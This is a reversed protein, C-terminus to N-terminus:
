TEDPTKEIWFYVYFLAALGNFIGAVFHGKSFWVLSQFFLSLIM